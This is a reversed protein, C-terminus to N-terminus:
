EHSVTFIAFTMQKEIEGKLITSKQATKNTETTFYFRIFFPQIPYCNKCAKGRRM